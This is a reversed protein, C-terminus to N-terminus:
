KEEWGGLWYLAGGSSNGQIVGRQPWRSFVIVMHIYCAVKGQM